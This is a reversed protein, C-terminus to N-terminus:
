RGILGESPTINYHAQFSENAFRKVHVDLVNLATLLYASSMSLFGHFLATVILNRTWM